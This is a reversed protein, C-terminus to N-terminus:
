SPTPKRRKEGQRQYAVTAVIPSQSPIQRPQRRYQLPLSKSVPDRQFGASRTFLRTLSLQTVIDYIVEVRYWRYLVSLRTKSPSPFYVGSSLLCPYHRLLLRLCYYGSPSGLIGFYLILFSSKPYLVIHDTHSGCIRLHPQTSLRTTHTALLLFSYDFNKSARYQIYRQLEVPM